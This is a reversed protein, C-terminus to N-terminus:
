EILEFIGPRDAINISRKYKIKSGEYFYDKYPISNCINACSFNVPRDYKEKSIVKFNNDLQISILRCFSQYDHKKERNIVLFLVSKMDDSWAPGGLGDVDQYMTFLKTETGNELNLLSIDYNNEYILINNKISVMRPCDLAAKLTKSLKYDKQDPDVIKYIACSALTETIVLRFDTKLNTSCSALLLTTLLLIAKLM